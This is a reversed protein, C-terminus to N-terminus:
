MKAFLKLVQMYVQKLVTKKTELFCTEENELYNHQFWLGSSTTIRLPGNVVILCRAKNNSRKSLWFSLSGEVTSLLIFFM